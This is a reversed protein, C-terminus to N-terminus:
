PHLYGCHDTATIATANFVQLLEVDSDRQYCRSKM